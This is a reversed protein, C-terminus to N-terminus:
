NISCKRVDELKAKHREFQNKKDIEEKNECINSHCYDVHYNQRHNQKSEQFSLQSLQRDYVAQWLQYNSM